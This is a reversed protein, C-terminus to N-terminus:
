GTSSSCLTSSIWPLQSCFSEQSCESPAAPAGRIRIWGLISVSAPLTWPWPLLDRQALEAQLLFPIM